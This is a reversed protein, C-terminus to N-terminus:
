MWQCWIPAYSVLCPTNGHPHRFTVRAPYTVDMVILTHVLTICPYSLLLCYCTRKIFIFQKWTSPANTTEVLSQNLPVPASPSTKGCITDPPHPHPVTLVRLDSTQDTWHDM